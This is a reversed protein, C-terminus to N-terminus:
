KQKRAPQAASTKKYQKLHQYLAFIHGREEKIIRNVKEKDDNEDVYDKMGVYYAISDKEVHVAMKFIQEITEKGQLKKSLDTRLDFVNEDAMAQLYLSAENDPDPVSVEKKALEEKMERFIKEHKVEMNALDLLFEKVEPNGVIQAARKYFNQGNREIEVAMELIESANFTISMDIGEM